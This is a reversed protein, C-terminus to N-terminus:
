VKKFELQTETVKSVPTSPKTSKFFLYSGATTFMASTYYTITTGIGVVRSAISKGVSILSTGVFAAASGIIQTWTYSNKDNQLQKVTDELLKHINTDDPKEIRKNTFTLLKVLNTIQGVADPNKIYQSFYKDCNKYMDKATSYLPDTTLIKELQLNLQQMQDAFQGIVKNHRDILSGIIAAFVPLKENHKIYEGSFVQAAAGYLHCRLAVPGIQQEAKELLDKSFFKEIWSHFQNKDDCIAQYSWDIIKKISDIITDLNEDPLYKKIWSQLQGKDDFPSELGYFEVEPKLKFSDEIFPGSENMEKNKLLIRGSHHLETIFEVQLDNNNDKSILDTNPYLKEKHKKFYDTVTSNCRAHNLSRSILAQESPSKLGSIFYQLDIKADEGTAPILLPIFKEEGEQTSVSTYRITQPLM